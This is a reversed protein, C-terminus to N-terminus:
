IVYILFFPIVSKSNRYKEIISLACHAVGAVGVWLAPTAYAGGKGAGRIAKSEPCFRTSRQLPM